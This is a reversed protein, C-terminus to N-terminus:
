LKVTLPTSPTSERNARDLATIVYVGSQPAPFEPTYTVGVIAEPNAINIKEGPQFRYVVWKRANKDGQWRIRDDQFRLHLPKSARAVNKWEYEPVLAMATYHRESLQPAICPLSAAYWWCHGDLNKSLNMKEDLEDYKKINEADEGIYVHRGFANKEWWPSLVRYPASRHDLQWYLQPIQYDIWGKKAWLPVDAYLDDYNSLGRTRSGRKPDASANRWIGFPSIGFRLWPKVSDITNHVQEILLDVNRRRWAPLSLTTKAATYDKADPFKLKPVPYPYFYDDFHIGDIDYRMVIDKVVRCILDRNQQQAPNFYYGDNYKLFREPHTKLLDDAPLTPYEDVKAARYPNLWAHLEMGRAHAQEVMFHLPDWEPDPAKGVEGSLFRSWPEIDSKYLADARPRVQFIVANIGVAQLSDLMSMLYAQNEPTSRQDYGQYITQIWAGRFDRKDAASLQPSLLYIILFLLYPLHRFM